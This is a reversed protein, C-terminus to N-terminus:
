KPFFVRGFHFHFALGDRKKYTHRHIHATGVSPIPAVGQAAASSLRLHQDQCPRGSVGRAHYIYRERVATGSSLKKNEVRASDFFTRLTAYLICM